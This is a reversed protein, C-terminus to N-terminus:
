VLTLNTKTWKYILFINALKTNTKSFETVLVCNQTNFPYCIELGNRKCVGSYKYSMKIDDIIIGTHSNFSVM